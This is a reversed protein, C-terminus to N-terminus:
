GVTGVLKDSGSTGRITGGAPPVDAGEVKITFVADTSRLGTDDVVRYSFAVDGKFGASPAFDFSGDPRLTLGSVAGALEYSLISGADPDSGAPLRGSITADMPGSVVNETTSAFPADAVAAITFTFTQGASKAGVSDVARYDFSFTGNSNAAPTFRYTGDGNLVLGALTTAAEYTLPLDGEPDSGAPLQGVVAEDELGSATNGGAATVPPQNSPDGTGGGFSYDTAHLTSSGQIKFTESTAGDDIRFSGNGLAIVTAGAGFGTFLIADGPNAGRGQFDKLVDGNVEGKRLVFVDDGGGGYLQDAGGGGDLRDSGGYGYLTNNASNGIVTNDGNNGKLTLKSTGEGQLVEVESDAALTFSSSAIVTDLGDGAAEVVKDKSSDVYYTDSGAWGRMLDAGAKGDIVDDGPTGDLTDAASTGIIPGSAPKAQLTLTFLQPASSAGQADVVVYSFAVDGSVDPAPTFVFNGSPALVLGPVEGQLLYTLADGEVDSGAPLQGSVPNGQIGSAANGSASALPADNVPDVTITFVQAPSSAGLSDRVVYSFNFEGFTNPPPTFTFSGNEQLSLGELGATLHYTLAIDGEPDSGAPVQGVLTTDEASTAENGDAA